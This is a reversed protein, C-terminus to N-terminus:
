LAVGVAEADRDKLGCTLAEAIDVVLRGL